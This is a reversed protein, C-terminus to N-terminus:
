KMKQPDRPQRHSFFSGFGKSFWSWGRGASRSKPKTESGVEPGWGGVGGSSTRFSSERHKGSSSIEISEPSPQASESFSRLAIDSVIWMSCVARVEDCEWSKAAPANAVELLPFYGVTWCINWEYSKTWANREKQERSSCPLCQLM